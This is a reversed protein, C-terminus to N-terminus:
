HGCADCAPVPRAWPHGRGVRDRCRPWDLQPGHCEQARRGRGAPATRAPLLAGHRRRIAERRRHRRPRDRGLGAARRTGHAPRSSLEDDPSHRRVLRRRTMFEQRGLADAMVDLMEQTVPNQAVVVFCQGTIAHSRSMAEVQDDFVDAFGALTALSPWSGAHIQEDQAILAHRALNMTHEWCVLGGVRGVATEWVKLTSADGQGWVTREAFTPQLKRHLGILSGDDGIVVQTNYLTGGDRENVGLVVVTGAQRAAARVRDVEPGTVAVSAAHYRLHLGPQVIPPYCNIWYPFGPVFVEPFVLLEVGEAGARAVLEVVKDITRDVDLFVPAAHVAAVKVRRVM